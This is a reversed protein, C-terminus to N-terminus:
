NPDDQNAGITLVPNIAKLCKSYFRILDCFDLMNRSLVNVVDDQRENMETFIDFVLEDAVFEFRETFYQVVRDYNEKFNKYEPDVKSM